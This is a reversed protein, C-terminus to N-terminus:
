ARQRLWRQMLPVRLRWQGGEDVVLLRRRLSTHVAEDAPPDQTDQRRFRLLYDWEGLLTSETQMLLRLVADGQAVAKDLTVNLLSADVQTAASNNVMAVATEAILQVLHPWGAAQAHIREIGDEGWFGPEFRPRQPDDVPWFPSHRLPETLLLRTEDLTFLPVDITRLSVLYSPWAAHTLETVHHSGALVWTIRRHSQISDRLAALLDEPFTGSGIKLDFSEYEDVALLLREDRGDLHANVQGLWSFLDALGKPEITPLEPDRCTDHVTRTILRLLSELSTFAEANQLSLAAVRVRTPLFAPLNKLVTSKGVRRRGYLILGPCGTSLTIQGEVEGVVENREVFAEQSRDVPDGARFVQPTPSKAVVSRAEDWQRQALRLWTQSASRFEGALPERFGAIRGEFVRIESVIARALPERFFPRSVTDLRSQLRAIEDIMERVRPTQVLFGDDGDPLLSVITALESLRRSSACQRALLATRAALAAMRQSPYTEILRSIEREGAERSTQAYAALLLYLSPFTVACMDDWAVPHWSYREPRLVPWVFVVHPLQYYARLMAVAAFLGFCVGVVIGLFVGRVPDDLSALSGVLISIPLSSFTSFRVAEATSLASERVLGRSVTAVTGAVFGGVCGLLAVSGDLLLRFSEPSDIQFRLLHFAAVLAGLFGNTLIIAIAFVMLRMLPLIRSNSFAFYGLFVVAELVLFAECLTDGLLQFGLVVVILNGGLWGVLAWAALRILWGWGGASFRTVFESLLSAVPALISVVAVIVITGVNIILVKATLHWLFSQSPTALLELTLVGSTTLALLWPVFHVFLKLMRVVVVWPAGHALATLFRHPRRYLLGLWWLASLHSRWGFGIQDLPLPTV